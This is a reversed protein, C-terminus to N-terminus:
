RSSSCATAVSGTVYRSMTVFFLQSSSTTHAPALDKGLITFETGFTKRQDERNAYLLSWWVSFARETLGGPDPSPNGKLQLIGPQSSQRIIVKRTKRREDSDLHDFPWQHQYVLRRLCSLSIWIPLKSVVVADTCPAIQGAATPQAQQARHPRASENSLRVSPGPATGGRRAAPREPGARASTVSWLVHSIFPAHIVSRCCKRSLSPDIAGGEPGALRRASCKVAITAM